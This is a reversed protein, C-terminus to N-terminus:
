DSLPARPLTTLHFPDSHSGGFTALGKPPAGATAIIAFTAFKAINAFMAFFVPGLIM